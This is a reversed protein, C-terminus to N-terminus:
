TNKKVLTCELLAVRAAVNHPGLDHACLVFRYKERCSCAAELDAESVVHAGPRDEWMTACGPLLARVAKELSDRADAIARLAGHATGDVDITSGGRARVWELVSPADTEPDDGNGHAALSVRTEIRYM